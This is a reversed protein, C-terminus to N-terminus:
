MRRNKSVFIKKEAAVGTQAQTMRQRSYGAGAEHASFDFNVWVSTNSPQVGIQARFSGKAKVEPTNIEDGAKIHYHQIGQRHKVQKLIHDCIHIFNETFYDDTVICDRLLTDIGTRILKKLLFVLRRLSIKEGNLMSENQLYFIGDKGIICNLDADIKLGNRDVRPRHMTELIGPVIGKSPGSVSNWACSLMDCRALTAIISGCPPICAETRNKTDWFKVWPWFLAAHGSQNLQKKWKLIEAYPTDKPGDIVALCDGKEECFNILSNFIEPSSEGPLAILDIDYNMKLSNLGKDGLLLDRRKSEHPVLGDTGMQEKGLQFVGFRPRQNTAKNDIVRIWNSVLNIFSEVYFKDKPNKNLSGWSEVLANDHFVKISFTEGAGPEIQIKIANGATGPSDACVTFCSVNNNNSKELESNGSAKLQDFGMNTRATSAPKIQISAYLGSHTTVLALRGDKIVAEFGGPTNKVQSNICNAIEIPSRKGGALSKFSLTQTVNDITLNGSGGIVIQLNSGDNLEIDGNTGSMLIAPTVLHDLGIQQYISDQVAELVLQGTCRIALKGEHDYFCVQNLAQENLQNALQAASHSGSLVVLIQSALEGNCSWRFFSNKKFLYPGPKTAILIQDTNCDVKTTAVLANEDAVRLVLVPCNMALIQEAVLVMPTDPSAQGFFHYLQQPNTVQTPHGIPGKTAFGILCARHNNTLDVSPLAKEELSM